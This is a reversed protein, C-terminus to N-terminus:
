KRPMNGCGIYMILILSIDQSDEVVITCRETCYQSLGFDEGM